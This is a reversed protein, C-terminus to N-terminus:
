PSAVSPGEAYTTQDGLNLGFVKSPGFLSGALHPLWFAATRPRLGVEKGGGRFLVTDPHPSLCLYPNLDQVRGQGVREPFEM